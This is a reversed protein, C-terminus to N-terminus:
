INEQLRILRNKADDIEVIGSDSNKWIEIFREYQAKADDFRGVGEYAVGLYYHMKVSWTGRCVLYSTYISLRDELLEIAKDFDGVEIYAQSLIYIIPLIKSKNVGQELGGIAKEFNGDIFDIMGKAVNYNTMFDPTEGLSDKLQELEQRARLIEGNQAMLSYYLLYNRGRYNFSQEIEYFASDHKKIGEYIISKIVHKYGQETGAGELRDAAMCDDLIQLAERMKGQYLPILSLYYRGQSRLTKSEASALKHFCDAAIEYEENLVYMVGLEELSSPFDPKIELAKKYSAIASDLQGNQAFLSGRSDYPNPEDPASFIYKNNAELAKDFDGLNNYAFSLLNHVQRYNPDLEIAKEFYEIAEENKGYNYKSNGLLLLANKENPYRNLLSMLINEKLEVNHDRAAELSKIYYVDKESANDIYEIAKNAYRASKLYALYYYAMAFTSDHEIVREFSRVADSYYRKQYYDVGDLYYRYADTSYTTFEAIKRDPEQLAGDPIPLDTKVAASLKDITAFIVAASDGDVRQSSIIDGTTVDIIQSTLIISPEIQLITGTLIWSAEAKKAIDIVQNLDIKDSDSGGLQNVIDSLRQGSVVQIYQSESLDTILLNSVIKGLSLSDTKDTLNDFWLIALRNEYAVADQGPRIEIQWPQLVLMLVVVAAAAIPILTRWINKQPPTKKKEASEQNALVGITERTAEDHRIHMAAENFKKMEERCSDCELIHLELERREDESLIGIEYAFLKEEFKKDLCSSM